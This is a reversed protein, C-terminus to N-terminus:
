LRRRKCSESSEKSTLGCRMGAEAALEVVAVAAAVLATAPINEVIERPTV